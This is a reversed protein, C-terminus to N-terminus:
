GCEKKYQCLHQETMTIDPNRDSENVPPVRICGCECYERKEAFLTKCEECRYTSKKM